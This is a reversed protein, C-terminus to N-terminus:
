GNGFPNGDKCGCTPAADAGVETEAEGAETSHSVGDCGYGSCNDGHETCPTADEGAGAEAANRADQNELEIAYNAMAAEVVVYADETGEAALGKAITPKWTDDRFTKPADFTIKCFGERHDPSEDLHAKVKQKFDATSLEKAAKLWEEKRIESEPLRALLNAKVTGIELITKKDYGGEVLLKQYIKAYNKVTKWKAGFTSKGWDEISSFGLEVLLERDRDLQVAIGGLELPETDQASVIEKARASLERAIEAKTKPTPEEKKGRM